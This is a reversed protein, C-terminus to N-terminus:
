KTLDYAVGFFSKASYVACVESNRAHKAQGDHAIVPGPNQAPIEAV